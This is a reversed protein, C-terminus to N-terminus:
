KCDKGREESSQTMKGNVEERRAFMFACILREPFDHALVKKRTREEGVSIKPFHGFKMQIERAEMM